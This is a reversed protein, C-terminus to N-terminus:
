GDLMQRIRKLDVIPDGSTAMTTLAAVSKEAIAQVLRSPQKVFDIGTTVDELASETLAMALRLRRDTESMDQVSLQGVPHVVLRAEIAAM